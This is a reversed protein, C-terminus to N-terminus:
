PRSELPSALFIRNCNAVSQILGKNTFFLFVSHALLDVSTIKDFPRRRAAGPKAQRHRARARAFHQAGVVPDSQPQDAAPALAPVVHVVESVLFHFDGRHAVDVFGVQPLAQLSRASVRFHQFIEALDEIVLLNVHDDDGRGVM